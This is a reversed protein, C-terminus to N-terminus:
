TRIREVLVMALTGFFLFPLWAPLASASEFRLSESVFSSAYCLGTAIMCKGADSLLNGPSRDLFFPIGLVLMALGVFPAARRAHLTRAIAAKDSGDRRKLESLQAQSLFRIWGETQQAQIDEPSLDSEYYLPYTEEVYEQPALESYRTERVCGRGRELKWRGVPRTATPPQWTARDAELTEVVRRQEDRRLVLLRRLDRRVPHFQGASLLADNRDRLFLVEYAKDGDADDHDRAILHALRPIVIETDLVYLATTLVGFCVVPAAVRYLSLGSSLMATLENSKRMRAITALCAFLTIVSSLQAYYLFINPWYYDVINHLVVPTAYGMETFEDMNVFLDLVVYLSLMVALAIGFNILLSRLIYRDLTTLM